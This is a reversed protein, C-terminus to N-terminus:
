TAPGGAGKHARYAQKRAFWRRTAAEDLFPQEKTFVKQKWSEDDSWRYPAEVTTGPADARELLDLGLEVIARQMDLDFPRGCPSGLPFDCFVFRPVGCHEVIDRACGFVVTSIGHAELHRAVLAV